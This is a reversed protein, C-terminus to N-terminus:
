KKQLQCLGGTTNSLYEVSDIEIIQYGVGNYVTHEKGVIRQKLENPYKTTTTSNDACSVLFVFVLMTSLAITTHITFKLKKM